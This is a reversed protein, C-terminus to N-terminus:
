AACFFHIGERFRMAALASRIEGRPKEGAVSVVIPYPPRAPLAEPPIVPAGAITEGLRRPHVEVIAAPRAGLRELAARLARGTRGHGWLVYAPANALPGRRLHWARCETFRDLGYRPDRRSLRDPGDRWGLLRRPVIGVRPGDRLLRLM